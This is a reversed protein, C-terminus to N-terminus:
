PAEYVKEEAEEEAREIERLEENEPDVLGIKGCMKDIFKIGM